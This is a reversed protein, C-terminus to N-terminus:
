EIVDLPFLESLEGSYYFQYALDGFSYDVDGVKIVAGGSMPEAKPKSYYFGLNYLTALVDPRNNINYGANQWQAQIQKMYLGVYLYSYYPDKVNTIRNMRESEIDVGDPYDLIHEYQPGLYYPSNIDKLNDEIQTATKPKIGAIGYSIDSLSALLKMPEFYQKFSERRNGFFRFQEGIIGGLLVRASIGADSAAKNITAQDRTFSYKMVGWEKTDAWQYATNPLESKNINKTYCNRMEKIFNNDNSFRQSASNIMSEITQDNIGSTLSKYIAVGTAPAYINLVEIQCLNKMSTDNQLSANYISGVFYSNRQSISGAVNLLGSKQAFFVVVFTFGIFAFIYVFINLIKINKFSNKLSM